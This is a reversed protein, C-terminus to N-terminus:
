RDTDELSGSQDVQQMPLTYTLPSIQKRCVPDIHRLFKRNRLTVKSRVERMQRPLHDRGTKWLLINSPLMGHGASTHKSINTPGM